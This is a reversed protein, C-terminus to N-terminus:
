EFNTQPSGGLSQNKYIISIIGVNDLKIIYINYYM